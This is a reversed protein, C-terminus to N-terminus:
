DLSEIRIPENLVVRRKSLDIVTTLYDAYFYAAAITDVSTKIEIGIDHQVGAPLVFQESRITDGTVFGPNEVTRFVATSAPRATERVFFRVRANGGVAGGQRYYKATMRVAGGISSSPTLRGYLRAYGTAGGIGAVRANAQVRNSSVNFARDAAGVGWSNGGKQGRTATVRTTAGVAATTGESSSSSDPTTATEPGSQKEGTTLARRERIDTSVRPTQPHALIEDAAARFAAETDLSGTNSRRRYKTAIGQIIAAEKRGYEAVLFARRDRRFPETETGGPIDPDDALPADGDAQGRVVESSAVTSGLIGVSLKGLLSRRDLM